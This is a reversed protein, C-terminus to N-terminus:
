SALPQWGTMLDVLQGPAALVAREVVPAGGGEPLHTVAGVTFAEAITSAAGFLPAEFVPGCGEPVDARGILRREGGEDVYVKM